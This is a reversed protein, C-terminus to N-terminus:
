FRVRRRARLLQRLPGSILGLDIEPRGNFTRAMSVGPCSLVKINLNFAAAARGAQPQPCKLRRRLGGTGTCVSRRGQSPHRECTITRTAATAVACRRHVPTTPDHRAKVHTRIRECLAARYGYGYWILSPSRAVTRGFPPRHCGCRDPWVLWCATRHRAKANWVRPECARRFPTSVINSRAAGSSPRM